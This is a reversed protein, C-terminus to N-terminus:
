AYFPECHYWFLLFRCFYGKKAWLLPRAKITSTRPGFRVDNKSEADFFPNPIARYSANGSRGGKDGEGLPVLIVWSLSRYAKKDNEPAMKYWFM